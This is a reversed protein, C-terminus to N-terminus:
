LIRLKSNALLIGVQAYVFRLAWQSFSFSCCVGLAVASKCFEDVSERMFMVRKM